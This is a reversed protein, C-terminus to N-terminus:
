VTGLMWANASSVAKVRQTGFDQQYLIKRARGTGQVWGGSQTATNIGKSKGEKMGRSGMLIKKEKIQVRIMCCVVYLPCYMGPAGSVDNSM